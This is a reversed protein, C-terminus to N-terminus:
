TRKLHSTDPDPFIEKFVLNKILIVALFSVAFVLLLLAICIATSKRSSAGSSTM